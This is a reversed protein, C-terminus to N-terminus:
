KLDIGIFNEKGLLREVLSKLQSKDTDGAGVLFLAKKMRWGKVNSICVCIFELLLQEFAKDGNTLTHLYRDFVLTPAPNRTWRCPIQITSYISPTHPVATMGRADVRLLCNKFNILTEWGDLEEQGIYQLDTILQQYVETIVRMKVLEPDYEEVFGKIVGKFMDEAYLRYVGGDYVYKLLAQKGSNRVLLYKVNERVYRALLAPVVYPEGDDNFRIFYPHEM